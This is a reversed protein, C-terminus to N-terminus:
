LILTHGTLDLRAVSSNNFYYLGFPGRRQQLLTTFFWLRNQRIGEHPGVMKELYSLCEYIVVLYNTELSSLSNTRQELSSLIFLMKNVLEVAFGEFFPKWEAEWEASSFQMMAYVSQSQWNLEFVTNLTTSLEYLRRRMFQCAQFLKESKSSALSSVAEGLAFQPELKNIDNLLSDQLLQARKLQQLYKYAKYLFIAPQRMSRQDNLWQEYYFDLNELIPKESAQLLTPFRKSLQIVDSLAAANRVNESPDITVQHKVSDYQFPVFDTYYKQYFMAVDANLFSLSNKSFLTDYIEFEVVVTTYAYFAPTTTAPLGAKNMLSKEINPWAANPFVGPLYTARINELQVILGYKKNDFPEGSPLHGKSNVPLLPLTMFSFQVSAKPDQDIDTNYQLRRSDKTRVDLALTQLMQYIKEPPMASYDTSWNGLCAHINDHNGFRSLTAFVGFLKNFNQIEQLAKQRLLEDNKIFVHFLSFVFALPLFIM